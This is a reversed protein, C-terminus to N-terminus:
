RSAGSAALLAAIRDCVQDESLPGDLATERTLLPLSPPEATLDLSPQDSAEILLRVSGSPPVDYRTDDYDGPACRGVHNVEHRWGLVNVVADRTRRGENDVHATTHPPVIFYAAPDPGLDAVFFIVVRSSDNQVWVSPPKPAGCGTLAIAILAVAATRGRAAM